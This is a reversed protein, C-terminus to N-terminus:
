SVAIKAPIPDLDSLDRAQPPRGPSAASALDDDILEDPLDLLRCVARIAFRVDAASYVGAGWRRAAARYGELVFPLLREQHASITGGSKAVYLAVRYHMHHIQELEGGWVRDTDATVRALAATLKPERQAANFERLLQNTVRERVSGGSPPESSIRRFADEYRRYAVALMLYDKSPFYRYLTALSVEAHQPMDKMQLNDEGGVLLLATAEQLIREYRRRQSPTNPTAPLAPQSVM